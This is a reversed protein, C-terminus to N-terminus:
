EIVNYGFESWIDKVGDTDLYTSFSKQAAEDTTGALVAVPITKIYAEMEKSDVVEIEAEQINEKWVLGVDAEGAELATVMAPATATNAVVEVKGELEFDEMMKSAVKGVPTSEPDGMIFKVGGGSLDIPEKIDKPNGNKVALVPVHEVLDKSSLVFDEVPKVEQDSGAIFFDGEGTTKIQTHIQAANGYTVQVDCGTEREFQEVIKEFPNKMGAGCFILLSHGELSMVDESVNEEAKSTTNDIDEVSDKAVDGSSCGTVLLIVLLLLISNKFIANM